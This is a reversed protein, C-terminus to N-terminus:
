DFITALRAPLMKNVAIRITIAPIKHAYQRSSFWGQIPDKEGYLISISTPSINDVIMEWTHQSDTILIRNNVVDAKFSPPLHWFQEVQHRGRGLLEDGVVLWDPKHFMVLRRHIIGFKAYGDHEAMLIDVDSGPQWLLLHAKAKRGWLFTGQIESQNQGDIVVTNHAATSRFFGRWMDGEQYAYTGSDVIFPFGDVSVLLNLADAHGHAATSLYGLPGFDSVIVRGSARMVGYGGAAFLRSGLEPSTVPLAEFALRGPEGLLWQSKEDWRYACAKLDSRKLLVAATALLARFNNVENRDDLQVVWADDSDGIAPVHGADDTIHTIFTCAAGLREDWVRPPDFGNLQALKWVILNFDLVFALYHTAQEVPVGDTSIQREIERELIRFGIDCWEAAHRLWPFCLGVVALGAAEGILHNNASSYASLHRSIYVSQEAIFRMIQNFLSKTLAPSQRAFAIAWAWNILRLALELASTWNVGRLPPNDEIWQSWQSLKRLLANM